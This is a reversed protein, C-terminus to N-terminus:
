QLLLITPHDAIRLSVTAAHQVGRVPATGVTPDFVTVAKFTRALHVTVEDGEPPGEGWLVLFFSGDGNALPLDHTTSSQGSISYALTAGANAGSRGSLITTLNRMYEASLRPRYSRDFFGFTQNGEEDTRDRLIYVATHSYGRAFQALYMNLVYRAQVEETVAGEILTGTETTVRPLGDMMHAPYGKFGKRWTVSFNGYVGDVRSSISPDAANWVKNPGPNPSSPHFFYNHVNAVDAYRTGDPMLTGAGPPIQLYQLGVNDQQAGPESISWVPYRRLAPDTKVAQYLDRQLRAVALWSTGDGGGGREGKYDVGWNNPENNGEIALLAGNEALVRATRMLKAIDTGGSLLGWSFKVGTARHLTLFTDITTPGDESVGEIGARIWRFGGHRVMDITKALPQGRDPLSTNVGLSGLFDATPAVKHSLIDARDRQAVPPPGASAQTQLCLAGCLLISFTVRMAWAKEPKEPARDDRGM